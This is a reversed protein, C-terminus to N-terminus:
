LDSQMNQATQYQDISDVFAEQTMMLSSLTLTCDAFAKFKSLDLLYEKMRQIKFPIKEM